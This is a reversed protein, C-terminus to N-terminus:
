TNLDSARLRERRTTPRSSSPHRAWAQHYTRQSSRRLVGNLRVEALVFERFKATALSGGFEAGPVRSHCSPVAEPYSHGSWTANTAGDQLLSNRSAVVRSGSFDGGMPSRPLESGEPIDRAYLAIDLLRAFSRVEFKAKFSDSFGRLHGFRSGVFCGFGAREARKPRM